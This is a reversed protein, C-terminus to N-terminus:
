KKLNMAELIAKKLIPIAVKIDEPPKCFSLRFFGRKAFASGPVVIIFNNALTECFAWEDIGDPIKPFIYFAGQPRVYKIGVEDLAQCVLDRSENYLNINSTAPVVKPIIRMHIRNAHVFGMIENAHAASHVLLEHNKLLPNVILCGIREGPLSLDKSLSYCVVSYLYEKFIQHHKADPSIVRCYVDDSVVYIPRGFEKSKRELVQCMKHVTEQSLLTGTPNHPSNIIIARTMPTIIAELKDPNIQWDEEFSTDLITCTAHWNEVYYPYELFYPATLIVEDGVSLITRLIVNMAGACGSTLIVCDKDIPVGQIESFLKALTERPAEDGRTSSYGHVLPREDKAVELLAESYEKPPPVRPNGLTFNHIKEDGYKKALEQALNDMKRIASGGSSCKLM